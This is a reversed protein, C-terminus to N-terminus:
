AILNHMSNHLNGYFARNPSLISSEMMNGLIDIGTVDDLPLRQNNPTIVFGDQVAKNFRGLSTEMETIDLRIDDAERVLTKPIAGDPRAPWARNAVLTDLKPFYGERIPVRFNSFRDVEGLNNSLRESKYRAMVQQHMYYFIEGRRDKEVLQRLGDFPYVLHRILFIVFTL